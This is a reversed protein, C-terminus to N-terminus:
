DSKRKREKKMSIHIYVNQTQHKNKIPLIVYANEGRTSMKKSDKITGCNIQARETCYLKIFVIEGKAM